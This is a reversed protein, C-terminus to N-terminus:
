NFYGNIIFVEYSKFKDGGSRKSKFNDATLGTTTGNGNTYQDVYIAGGKGPHDGDGGENKYDASSVSLSLNKEPDPETLQWEKPYKFTMGYKSYSKWGDYSYSKAVRPSSNQGTQNNSTPQEPKVLNINKEKKQNDWVKLGVVGVTALVLVVVIATIHAVGSENNKIIM